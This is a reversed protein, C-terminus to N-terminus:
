KTPGLKFRRRRRLLVSVGVLSVIATVTISPEPITGSLVVNDFGIYRPSGDSIAM